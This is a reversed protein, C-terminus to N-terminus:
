ALALRPPRFPSDSPHSVVLVTMRAVLDAPPAAQLRGLAFQPLVASGTAHCCGGHDAHLVNGDHGHHQAGHDHSAHDDASAPAQGHAHGAHDAQVTAHAQAPGTAQADPLCLAAVAAATWQLPLM